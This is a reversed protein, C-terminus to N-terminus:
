TIECVNGEGGNKMNYLGGSLLIIGFLIVSMRERTFVRHDRYLTKGDSLLFMSKNEILQSRVNEADELFYFDEALFFKREEKNNYIVIKFIEDQKEIFVKDTRVEVPNLDRFLELTISRLGYVTILLGATILFVSIMDPKKKFIKWM